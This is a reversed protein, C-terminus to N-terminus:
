SHYTENHLKLAHSLMEEATNIREKIVQETSSPNPSSFPIYGSSIIGRLFSLAVELRKAVTLKNVSVDEVTETPPIQDIVYQLQGPVVDGLFYEKEGECAAMEIGTMHLKGKEMYVKTVTIDAPGINDLNFMIVPADDNEVFSVEGGHAEVAAILEAIEQRKLGQLREYFDSHKMVKKNKNNYLLEPSGNPGM